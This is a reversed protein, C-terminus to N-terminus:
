EIVYVSFRMPVTGSVNRDFVGEAGGQLYKQNIFSLEKEGGSPNNVYVSLNWESTLSHDLSQCRTKGRNFTTFIHTGLTKQLDSLSIYRTTNYDFNITITPFGLIKLTFTEQNNFRLRVENTFEMGIIIQRFSKIDDLPIKDFLDVNWNDRTFTHEVTALLKPVGPLTGLSQNVKDIEQKLEAKTAFGTTDTEQNLIGGIAM